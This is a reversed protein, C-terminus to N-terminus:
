EEKKETNTNNKPEKLMEEKTEKFFITPIKIPIVNLEDIMKSLITSKNINIRGMWM